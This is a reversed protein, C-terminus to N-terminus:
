VRDPCGTIKIRGDDLAADVLDNYQKGYAPSLFDNHYQHYVEAQYFPFKKTDYVYVLRKGLTDPDNGKGEVLSMGAAAAAEEVKSFMPHNRGGPLGLLSRYEGGKDMPDAREGKKGFLKFYEVAFDGIATTPM